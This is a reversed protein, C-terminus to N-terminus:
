NKQTHQECEHLTIGDPSLMMPKEM